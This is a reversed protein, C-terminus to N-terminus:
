PATPEEDGTLLRLTRIVEDAVQAENEALYFHGGPFVHSSYAGRTADRWGDAKDLPVDPDAAGNFAVVPASIRRLPQPQYEKVLRFDARIAPMVLERLDSRDISEIDFGGIRRLEEILEEDTDGSWERPPPLHPAVQGSVLLGLPRYAFSTELRLAVEFAVWAGMSHGFLVLPAPADLCPWLAEVVEPALEDMRSIGPEGIRDQRGPYQVTLLEVGDPLWRAWSHFFNAAGGAHPLCM